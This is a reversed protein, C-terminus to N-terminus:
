LPFPVSWVNQEFSITMYKYDVCPWNVRRELVNAPNPSAEPLPSAYIRQSLVALAISTSMLYHMITTLRHYYHFHRYYSHPATTKLNIIEISPFM